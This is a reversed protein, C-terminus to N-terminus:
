EHKRFLIGFDPSKDIIVNEYEELVCLGYIEISDDLWIWKVCNDESIVRTYFGFDFVKQVTPIWTTHVTVTSYKLLLGKKEEAEFAVLRLVKLYVWCDNILLKAYNNVGNTDIRTSRSMCFKLDRTILEDYLPGINTRFENVKSELEGVPKIKKCRGWYYCLFGNGKLSSVNLCKKLTLISLRKNLTTYSNTSAKVSKKVRNCARETEFCWNDKFSGFDAWKDFMHVLQHTPLSFFLKLWEFGPEAVKEEIKLILAIFSNKLPNTGNQSELFELPVKRSVFAVIYCNCELLYKLIQIYPNSNNEMLIYPMLPVFYFSFLHSLTKMDVAKIMTTLMAPTLIKDLEKMDEFLHSKSLYGVSETKRKVVKKHLNLDLNKMNKNCVVGCIRLSFVNKYSIDMLDPCLVRFIDLNTHHVVLPIAKIRWGSSDVFEGSSVLKRYFETEIKIVKLSQNVKAVSHKYNTDASSDNNSNLSALYIKGETRRIKCYLCPNHSVSNLTETIKKLAVTNGTISILNVKLTIKTGQNVIKIGIKTLFEIEKMLIKAMEGTSGDTERKTSLVLPIHNWNEEYRLSEPLDFFTVLFVKVGLYSKSLLNCDDLSLGINYVFTNHQSKEKLVSERYQRGNFVSSLTKSGVLSNSKNTSMEERIFCNEYMAIMMSQLSEYKFSLADTRQLNCKVSPCPKATNEFFYSHTNCPCFPIEVGTALKEWAEFVREHLHRIERDQKEVLGRDSGLKLYRNACDYSMVGNITICYTFYSTPTAFLNYYGTELFSTFASVSTHPIQEYFIEDKNEFRSKIEQTSNLCTIEKQVDTAIIEAAVLTEDQGINELNLVEPSNISYDDDLDSGFCDPEKDVNDSPPLFSAFDEEIEESNSSDDMQEEEENEENSDTMYDSPSSRDSITDKEFRALNFRDNINPFGTAQIGQFTLGIREHFIEMCKTFLGGFFLEADDNERCLHDFSGPEVKKLDKFEMKRRKAMPLMAFEGLNKGDISLTQTALDYKPLNHNQLYEFMKRCATPSAAGKGYKRYLQQYTPNYEKSSLLKILTNSIEIEEETAPHHKGIIYYEYYFDFVGVLEMAQKEAKYQPLRVNELQAYELLLITTATRLMRTNTPDSKDMKEVLIEPFREIALKEFREKNFDM